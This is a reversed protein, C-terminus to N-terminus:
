IFEDKFNFYFIIVNEGDLVCILFIGLCGSVYEYSDVFLVKLLFSCIIKVLNFFFYLFGLFWKWVEKFVEIFKVGVEGLCVGIVLVMVMFVGVLVGYIYMVNVVLFFVYECFCFVVGVYYVGFFGCGVFM